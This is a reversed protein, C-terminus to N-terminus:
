AFRQRDPAYDARGVDGREGDVEHRVCRDGSCRVVDVATLLEDFPSSTVSSVRVEGGAVMCHRSTSVADTAYRPYGSDHTINRFVRARSSHNTFRSAPEHKHPKSSNLIM